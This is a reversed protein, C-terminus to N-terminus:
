SRARDDLLADECGTLRKREYRQREEEYIRDFYDVFNLHIAALVTRIEVRWQHVTM